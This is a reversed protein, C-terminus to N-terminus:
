CSGLFPFFAYRLIQVLIDSLILRILITVIERIDYM